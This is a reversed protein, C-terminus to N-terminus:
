QTITQLTENPLRTPWYTLRRITGTLPTGGISDAGIILRDVSPVASSTSPTALTGNCAANASPSGVAIVHKTLFNGISLTLDGPNNQAGSIVVRHNVTSTSSVFADWRNSTTGDSFSRPTRVSSRDPERFEILNTGEEQRYWDSEFVTTAASTSVDAARTATSGSTPIVSTAFAGQELQPLGIRLTIDINDGSANLGAFGFRPQVFATDATTTSKHIYRVLSNNIPAQTTTNSIYTGDARWYFIAVYINGPLINATSGAVIKLYASATWSQSPAASIASSGEFAVNFFRSTTTGYYRVDVYTVGNEIGTGVIQRSLGISADGWNTPLTGPTGAVAGVMTNNRIYNTGADELLLPGASVFNGNGDPLYAATRATSAATTTTKAYDGATTGTELQAGWIYIGSTGDGTYSFNGSADGMRIIPGANGTATVVLSCRYWGNGMSTISSGSPASTVTGASLDYDTLFGQGEVGFGSLRLRDREAAKAYVSFVYTVGTTVTGQAIQHVGPDITEILKDATTKGDPAVASNTDFTLSTPTWTTSFDESQLLLNYSSKKLTGNVDYYTASSARSTWNVDSKIYNTATSGEELQAGWLYIGSTGDGVYNTGDSDNLPLLWPNASTGPATISASCRYWGDGASTITATVGSDQSIITGNALNFRAGAASSYPFVGIGTREASKAYVSTTIPVGSVVTASQNIYHFGSATSEVLKDATIQNNPSKIANPTISSNSKTWAAQDFEESYQLLNTRFVGFNDDYIGAVDAARTVTSGETPIYSTPFSGAELQAGWIDFEDGARDIKIYTRVTSSTPTNVFSFRTWASTVSAAVQTINDGVVAFLSGSGTRRRAWFSFVYPQGSTGSIIRRLWGTDGAGSDHYFTTANNGGAPDAVGTILTLEGTQWAANTFDESYTLLNTRSEEVLLGLSEGTTPDHDFRPASNITSTTKVYESVTDSQELQAGWIYIGSTGDGLYSSFVGNNLGVIFLTTGGNDTITGGIRYWGNPYATIFPNTWGGSNSALTGTQLDFALTQRTGFADDSSLYVRRTGSANKVFVSHTQTLNGTNPALFIRHVNTTNDETFLQVTPSGDPAAVSATSQVLQNVNWGTFLESYTLLNTTATKILGDSGVYTGSSARTFDVLNSGTTADVQQGLNKHRAFDLDLSATAFINDSGIGPQLGGQRLGGGRVSTRLAKVM